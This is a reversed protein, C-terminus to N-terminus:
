WSVAQIALHIPCKGTSVKKYTKHIQFTEPIPKPNAVEKPEVLMEPMLLYTSSLSPRLINAANTFEEPAKVSIKKSKM